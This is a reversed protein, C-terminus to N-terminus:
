HTTRPHDHAQRRHQTQTQPTTKDDGPNLLTEFLARYHVFAQRQEETGVDGTQHSLHIAHAARYNEVVTPHDVSIDAARRDFDDVPYGRERMVETVLRDADGVASSPSDVFATQVTRWRGAYGDLAAPTLPVIDLKDRKRERATLEKEATKQEGAEVVTREYEPGFREKLRETRKRRSVWIAAALAVAIVVVIAAILVWGWIPM